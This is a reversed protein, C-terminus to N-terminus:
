QMGGGRGPASNSGSRPDGSSSIRPSPLPFRGAGPDGPAPSKEDLLRWLVWSAVSRLPRGCREGPRWGDGAPPRRRWGTWDGPGGGPDGSRGPGACGAKGSSLLLFMRPLGLGRIGRVEVLGSWWRTTPLRAIRGLPLRGDVTREALGSIAALKARSVIRIMINGGTRGTGGAGSLWSSGGPHPPPDGPSPWSGVM